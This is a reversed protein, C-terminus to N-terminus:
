LQRTLWNAKLVQYVEKKNQGANLLKETSETRQDASNKSRFAVDFEELVKEINLISTKVSGPEVLLAKCRFPQLSRRFLLGCFFIIILWCCISRCQLWCSLPKLKVVRRSLFIMLTARKCAHLSCAQSQCLKWQHPRATARYCLWYFFM